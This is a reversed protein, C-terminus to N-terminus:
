QVALRRHVINVWPEVHCVCSLASPLAIAIWSEAPTHGMTHLLNRAEGLGVNTESGKENMDKRHLVIQENGRNQKPFSKSPIM